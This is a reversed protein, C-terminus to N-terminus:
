EMRLSMSYSMRDHPFITYTGLVMTGEQSYYRRVIVFGACGKALGLARAERLSMPRAAFEQEVLAIPQCIREEIFDHLGVSGRDFIDQLAPHNRHVYALLFAVARRGGRLHKLASLRHWAQGRRCKLM